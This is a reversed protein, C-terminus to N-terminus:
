GWTRRRRGLPIKGESKGMLIRRVNIKVRMRAVHGSWRMRRSKIKRIISPSSYL